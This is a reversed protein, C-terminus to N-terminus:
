PIIMNKDFPNIAVRSRPLAEPFTGNEFFQLVAEGLLDWRRYMMDHDLAIHFADVADSDIQRWDFTLPGMALCENQLLRMLSTARNEIILGKDLIPGNPPNPWVAHSLDELVRGKSLKGLLPFREIVTQPAREQTPSRDYVISTINPIDHDLLHTHLLFAGAIYCIVKVEKYDALEFSAMFTDVAKSSVELSPRLLVDPIFVDMNQREWFAMQAKCAAKSGGFGNMILLATKQDISRSEDVHILHKALAEAHFFLLGFSCIFLWKFRYMM